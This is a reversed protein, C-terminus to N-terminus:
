EIFDHFSTDLLALSRVGDTFAQEAKSEPDLGEIEQLIAAYNQLLPKLPELAQRYQRRTGALQNTLAQYEEKVEADMRRADFLKDQARQLRTELTLADDDSVKEGRHRRVDVENVVKDLLAEEEEKLVRLTYKSGELVDSYWKERGTLDTVQGALRHIDSDLIRDDIEKLAERAENRLAALKDETKEAASIPSSEEAQARPAEGQSQTPRQGTISQIVKSIFRGFDGLVGRELISQSHGRM